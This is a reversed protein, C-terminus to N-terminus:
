LNPPLSPLYMPLINNSFCAALALGSSVSAEQPVGGGSGSGECGPLGEESFPTALHFDPRQNSTKATADCSGAKRLLSTSGEFTGRVIM